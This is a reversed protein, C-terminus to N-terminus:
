FLNYQLVGIFEVGLQGGPNASVRSEGARHNIANDGGRGVSVAALQFALQAQAVFTHHQGLGKTLPHYFVLETGLPGGPFIRPSQQHVIDVNVFNHLQTQEVATM